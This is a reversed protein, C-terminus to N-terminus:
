VDRETDGKERGRSQQRDTHGHINTRKPATKQSNVCRDAWHQTIIILKEGGEEVGQLEWSFPKMSSRSLVQTLYWSHSELLLAGAVSVKSFM